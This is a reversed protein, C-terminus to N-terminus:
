DKFYMIRSTQRKYFYDWAWKMMVQLRNNFGVLYGIHVFVWLIWAPFGSVQFNRFDAIAENRGIVALKGKDFYKFPQIEKNQLKAIIHKGAYTGQQMAVPAIGPLSNGNGDIFN